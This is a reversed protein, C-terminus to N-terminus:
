VAHLDGRSVASLEGQVKVNKDFSVTRVITRVGEDFATRNGMVVFTDIVDVLTM